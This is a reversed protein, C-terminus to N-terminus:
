VVVLPKADTKFAQMIEEATSTDIRLNTIMPSRDLKEEEANEVIILDISLYQDQEGKLYYLYVKSYRYENEGPIARLAAVADDALM